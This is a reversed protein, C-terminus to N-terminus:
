CDLERDRGPCHDFVRVVGRVVARRQIRSSRWDCDFGYRGLALAFMASRKLGIAAIAPGGVVSFVLCSIFFIFQAHGMQKLSTGFERYFIPFSAPLFNYVAGYGVGLVIVFWFVPDKWIPKHRTELPPAEMTAM